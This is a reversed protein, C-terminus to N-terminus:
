RFPRCYAARRHRRADIRDFAARAFPHTGSLLRYAVCALSFIDDEFTPTMGSLVEPSAYTQTVWISNEGAEYHPDSTYRAVGFDLLKIEQTETIFINSPNIDAHVVNHLHAHQLGSAIGEVIRWAFQTDLRQGSTRRLLANVTEGDLWEMVLYFHDDHQDFDFINVINPHALHQTKAAERELAIRADQKSAISRRMMKIAVHVQGSAARHRRLDIAKYVHGMGASHVLAVIEFRDALVFGPELAPDDADATADSRRQRGQRKLPESRLEPDASADGVAALTMATVEVPSLESTVADDFEKQGDFDDDQDGATRRRSDNSDSKHEM